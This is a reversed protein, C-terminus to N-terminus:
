SKSPKANFAVTVIESIKESPPTLRRKVNTYSSLSSTMDISLARQAHVHYPTANRHLGPPESGGRSLRCRLLIPLGRWSSRLPPELGGRWEKKRAAKLEETDRSNPGARHSAGPPRELRGGLTELSIQDYAHRIAGTFSGIERPSSRSGRFGPSTPSHPAAPVRAAAEGIIEVLRM